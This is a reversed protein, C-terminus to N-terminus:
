IHILSLDHLILLFRENFEFADNRQQMLQWTCDLLQTFVPSVEKPDNQIHGCRDSFKHGFALWDKEILAQITSPYILFTKCTYILVYRINSSIRQYHSLVSRVNASGVFLSTRYSGLRRLLTCCRFNGQRRCECYLQFPFNYMKNACNGYMLLTPCYIQRSTDLISRIHKLWGSSELASLFSNMTPAKQECGLPSFFSNNKM